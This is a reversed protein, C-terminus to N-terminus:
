KIGVENLLLLIESGDRAIKIADKIKLLIDIDKITKIGAMVADCQDPFKLTMGLEIADTLGEIKGEIKGEKRLREALTM